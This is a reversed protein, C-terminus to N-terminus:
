DLYFYTLNGNYRDEDPLTSGMIADGWGNFHLSLGEVGIKKADITLYQTVPAQFKKDFGPAAYQQFRLYTASDISYEAAAMALSPMLCFVVGLYLKLRRM